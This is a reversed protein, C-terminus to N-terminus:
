RKEGIYFNCLSNGFYMLEARKPKYGMSWFRDVLEDMGYHKFHFKNSGMPCKLHPTSVIFLEPNISKFIHFVEDTDEIHEIAEFSVVVDIQEWLPPSFDLFDQAKYRINPSKYHENAFEIAEVSDDVGIVDKAIKAMIYSGYGVGCCMDLVRKGKAYATAEYYRQLHDERIQVLTAGRQREGSRLSKDRGM